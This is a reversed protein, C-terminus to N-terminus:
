ETRLSKVPNALSAKIAQFSVTLLTIIVAGAGVAIFIWWTMTARYQYGQLWQHMFYYAVPVAICLAIGVLWVFEKSLLKWVSFVSAGLVKRVGIEKTRQEAIFSALGFLGLCSILIALVAFFGALKGVREEAGFKRNYEEDVFKYEFPAAPNYKHFVAEMSQLAVSASVAPNIKAFVYNPAGNNRWFLSPRVPEYPSETIVNKVVGIVKCPRTRWTIIAGIPDQLKMFQVAAENIIFSATDATFDRSFDRGAVIKWGVTKGYDVSVGTVPFDVTTQPDKGIWSLEGDSGWTDTAPAESGALATIINQQQLENGILEFSAATNRVPNTMTVLGNRSYGVPRDKAFEIQRIVIITCIILAVSVTFQVVVSTKRPISAWQGVRFTGKLVKVPRFSSLYLAPYSGALIGTIGSFAIGALWFYSQTWPITIKKGAVENFFPLLFQAIVLAVMFALATVFLSEFYFQGIIQARMSGIAKRVGVEKARKESRATSLNMFNICALLLVFVGIIGFMWVYKIRGGANIGNEYEEYLHWKSMPELFLTPKYRAEESNVKQLKLDKILASTQSMDAEDSLQVYMQVFNKSWDHSTNQIWPSNREFLSFPAMFKVNTFTTNAPLDEYVGTVKVEDKNDMQIVQDIPDADGFFAKATSQSLLISSPDQLGDRTGKLMNLTFMHPAEPTLYVGHNTLKKDGVSLIHGARHSSMVIYKFYRGYRTRLENSLPYPVAKDTKVEGNVSMNLRVKAIHDRNNHVADFSLEDYIWLGILIAVAMGTSLGVINIFTHAKNRILNRVAIKLHSKIM